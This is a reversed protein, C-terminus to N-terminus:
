KIYISFGSCAQKAAYMAVDAHKVLTDADEGHLPYLAIGISIGVYLSNCDVIVPQKMADLLRFAVQEAEKFDSLPLLIMFEDGGFRAITDSQRLAGHLRIGVERLVIDGAHHGLTDNIEKFKNIDMILLALSGGERQQALISQNLRDYFLIRNPLGTLSDHLAMHKLAETHTRIETVDQVLFIREGREFIEPRSIHFIRNNGNKDVLSREESEADNIDFVSLEDYMQTFYEMQHNAAKLGDPTTAIVGVGVAETVAHLLSLQREKQKSELYKKEIVLRREGERILAERSQLVDETLRQFRDELVYLQDGKELGEQKAGLKNQSFDMVYRTLREIRRPIWLMILVFTLIFAPAAYLRQKQQSSIVLKTMTEVEKTSFFSIFKVYAEPGYDFYELGTVFHYGKLEELSSGAPIEKLNSSVQVKLDPSTEGPAALAVVHGPHPSVSAFLFEDNVPFVVMLKARLIGQSDRYSCSAVVYPAGDINLLLSEGTWHSKALLLPSPQFLPSSPTRVSSYSERVRTQADLLFISYPQVFTRLISAPPSWAPYQNHYKVEIADEASWKQREIYDSFNEQTCCLTILRSHNKLYNDFSVWDDIAEQNLREFLQAEFINKLAYSQMYDFAIWALVGLAIIIVVMKITISTRKFLSQIMHKM